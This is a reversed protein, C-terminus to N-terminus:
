LHLACENRFHTLAQTTYFSRKLQKIAVPTKRWQGFHVEGFHGQKQRTGRATLTQASLTNTLAHSSSNRRSAFRASSINM